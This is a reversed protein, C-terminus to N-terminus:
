ETQHHPSTPSSTLEPIDLELVYKNQATWSTDKKLVERLLMTAYCGAPLSYNVVVAKYSGTFLLLKIQLKIGMWEGCAPHSMSVRDLKDKDTEILQTKAEDYCVSSRCVAVCM